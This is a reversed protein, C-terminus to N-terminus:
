GTYLRARTRAATIGLATRALAVQAYEHVLGGIRDRRIVRAPADVAPPEPVAPVTPAGNDLHDTLGINKTTTPASM